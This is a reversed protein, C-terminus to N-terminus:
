LIMPDYFSIAIYAKLRKGELDTMKYPININQLIPVRPIKEPLTYEIGLEM